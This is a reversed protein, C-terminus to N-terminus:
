KRELTVIATIGLPLAVVGWAVAFFIGLGIGAEIHRMRINGMDNVEVDYRTGAVGPMTDSVRPPAAATLLSLSGGIGGALVTWGILVMQAVWSRFGVRARYRAFAGVPRVRTLRAYPMPEPMQSALEELGPPMQRDRAARALEELDSM